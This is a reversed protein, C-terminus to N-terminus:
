NPHNKGVSHFFLVYAMGGVLTNNLIQLGTLALFLGNIDVFKGHFLQNSSGRVAIHEKQADV